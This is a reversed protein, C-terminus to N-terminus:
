PRVHTLQSNGPGETRKRALFGAATLRAISRQVTNTHIGLIAAIDTATARTTRDTGALRAFTTLVNHDQPGMRSM